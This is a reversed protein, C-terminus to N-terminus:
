KVWWEPVFFEGSRGAPEIVRDLCRKFSEEIEKKRKFNPKIFLPKGVCTSCLEANVLIDESNIGGVWVYALLRGYKDTRQEDFELRVERRFPRIIWDSLVWKAVLGYERETKWDIKYRKLDASAKFSWFSEPTDVGILRVKQIKDEFLVEITDGDVVKVVIANYNITCPDVEMWAFAPSIFVFFFLLFRM